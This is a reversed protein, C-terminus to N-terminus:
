KYILYFKCVINHTDGGIVAIEMEGLCYNLFNFKYYFGFTLIGMRKFPTLSRLGKKM